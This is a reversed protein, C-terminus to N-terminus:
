SCVAHLGGQREALDQVEEWTPNFNACGHRTVVLAGCANGIRASTYWDFGKVRGYILGGAFADGAGLVNQVEVQFGPVSLPLQGRQHIVCGTAGRKVVVVPVLKLLVEINEAINGRIEPASIQQDRIVIDAPHQLMAANIEEETGIAVDVNPLLARVTLGFARPDHWQDARFDLDLYVHTGHKRAQEVAFFHASRSPEVALGTGSLELATFKGWPLKLVDDISIQKDSANDRYYVLPFRDQEIGLVVASSRTGPKIPTYRTDVGEKHLFNLIFDGVQDQGVATLLATKLGLRQAGVAINLPSGGVYAAFKTIDIFPAGLDLSYLDISSRGLTILDFDM